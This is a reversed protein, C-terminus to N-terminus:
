PRALARMGVDVIAARPELAPVADLPMWRAFDTTGGGPLTWQPEAGNYWTLLVRDGDVIVAHAALRTDYDAFHM